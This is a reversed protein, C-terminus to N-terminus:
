KKAEASEDKEETKMADQAQNLAGKFEGISQGLAKGIEPLKKPGFVILAIILILILESFGINGLV